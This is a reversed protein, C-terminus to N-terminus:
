HLSELQPVHAETITTGPSPPGGAHPIKTGWGPLSGSAGADSHPTKVM